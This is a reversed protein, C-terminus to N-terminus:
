GREDTTEDEPTDPADPAEPPPPATMATLRARPPALRNLRIGFNEGVKVAQGQGIVKNNVLLDLPEDSTKELELIAGPALALVDEMPARTRGVHVIVPVTLKLITQVDTPM